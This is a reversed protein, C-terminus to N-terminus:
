YFERIQETQIEQDNEADEVLIDEKCFGLEETLYRVLETRYLTMYDDEFDYISIGIRANERNETAADEVSIGASSIVAACALVALLRKKM